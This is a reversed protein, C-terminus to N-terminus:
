QVPHRLPLIPATSSFLGYHYMGDCYELIYDPKVLTM